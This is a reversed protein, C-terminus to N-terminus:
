CGSPCSCSRPCPCAWDRRLFTDDAVRNKDSSISSLGKTKVDSSICSELGCTGCSGIEGIACNSGGTISCCFSHHSSAPCHDPTGPPNFPPTYLSPDAGVEAIPRDAKFSAM